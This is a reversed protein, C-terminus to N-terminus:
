ETEEARPYTSIVPSYTGCTDNSKICVRFFYEKEPNLDIWTFSYSEERSLEHAFKTPYTIDETTSLMAYYGDPAQLDHTDWSMIIEGTEEGPKVAIDIAGTIKKKEGPEISADDDHTLVIDVDDVNNADGDGQKNLIEKEEDSMTTSTASESEDEMLDDTTTATEDEEEEPEEIDACEGKYMAWVECEQGDDLTCYGETTGALTKKMTFEGGRSLCYVTAPNSLATDEAMQADGYVTDDPIQDEVIPEPTTEAEEKAFPNCGAGLFVLLIAFSAISLLKKQKM